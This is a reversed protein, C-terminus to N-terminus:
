IRVALLHPTWVVMMSMLITKLGDRSIPLIWYQHMLYVLSQFKSPKTLRYLFHHLILRHSDMSISIIWRNRMCPLHQIWVMPIAICRHRISQSLWGKHCTIWVCPLHVMAMILWHIVVPHGHDLTQPTMSMVMLNWSVEQQFVESKLMLPKVVMRIRLRPESICNKHPIKMWWLVSSSRCLWMTRNQNLWYMRYGHWVQSKRLLQQVMKTIITLPKHRYKLGCKVPSVM